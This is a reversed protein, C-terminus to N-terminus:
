LLSYMFIDYIYIYIYAYVHINYMMIYLMYALVNISLPFYCIVSVKIIFPILIKHRM